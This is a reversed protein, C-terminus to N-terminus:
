HGNVAVLGADTKFIIKPFRHSPNCYLAMLAHPLQESADVGGASM